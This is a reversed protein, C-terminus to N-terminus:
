FPLKTLAIFRDPVISGLLPFKIMPPLVTSEECNKGPLISSTRIYLRASSAESIWVSMCVGTPTRGEGVGVLEGVDVFM